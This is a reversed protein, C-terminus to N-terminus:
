IKNKIYNYFYNAQSEHGYQGFHADVVQGSTEETITAVDEIGYRLTSLLSQNYEGRIFQTDDTSQMSSVYSIIEDHFSWYFVKAGKERCLENIIQTFHHIEQFWTENSRNVFIYDLVDNDYEKYKVSPLIDKLHDDYALIFRYPHTWGIIVVDDKLINSCNNCFQYFIKYNSTAGIGKNKNTLDLEESLLTPWVPPLYGGLFDSYMDYTNPPNNNVPHYEATFSCGFSWLNNKM